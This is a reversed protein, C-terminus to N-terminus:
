DQQVKLRVCESLDDGDQDFSIASLDRCPSAWHQRNSPHAEDITDIQAHWKSSASRGCVVWGPRVGWERRMRFASRGLGWAVGRPRM